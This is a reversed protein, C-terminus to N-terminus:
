SYTPERSTDHLERATIENETLRVDLAAVADALHRVKTAGGV